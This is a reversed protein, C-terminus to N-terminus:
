RRSKPSLSCCADHGEANISGPIMEADMWKNNVTDWQSIYIKEFYKGDGEKDVASNVGNPRRSNFIFTRGDASISPTKDDFESNIAQGMNEIKVNAPKAMLAKATNCQDLYYDVRSDKLKSEKKAFTTKFTTYETIAKDIDGNQQYALGLDMDLYDDAKPDKAKAKELYEIANPIDDDKLYCAGINFMISADAPHEVELEKYLKLAASYNEGLYFQHANFYKVQDKGKDIVNQANAVYGFLFCSFLLCFCTTKKM